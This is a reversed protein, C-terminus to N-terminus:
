KQRQWDPFGSCALGVFRASVQFRGAKASGDQPLTTREIVVRNATANSFALKM